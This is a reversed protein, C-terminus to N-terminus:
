KKNGVTMKFRNQTPLEGVQPADVVFKACHISNGIFKNPYELWNLDILYEGGKLQTNQIKISISNEGETVNVPELSNFFLNGESVLVGASDKIIIRPYISASRMCFMNINLVIDSGYKIIKASIRVSCKEIVDLFVSNEGKSDILKSSTANYRKIGEITDGYFLCEGDGMFMVSTCMREIQSMSHSVFIVASEERLKDIRNFCKARFEADGVALVEDLLLIDPQLATAIAFGLRVQMGSSYSQVPTDIFDWLEAFDVIDKYKLDIEKKSLGLVSGNVYINEKGTLIPNFGAGLAILAGVRGKMVVEGRDPKILGNLIKLLTTKGAGNRGILGLVEGRKLEFSINSLSWFEKKRLASKPERWFMLEGAIDQVGYRLSTKLDRCFKKSVEGVSILTETV